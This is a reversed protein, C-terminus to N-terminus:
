WSVRKEKAGSSTRSSGSLSLSRLTGSGVWKYWLVVGAHNYVGVHGDEAEFYTRTRHSRCLRKIARSESLSARDQSM